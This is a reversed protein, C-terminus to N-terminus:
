AARRAASLPPKVTFVPCPALRVVKEAVSGLVLRSIGSRGHSALVILDVELRAAARVIEMYPKGFVFVPDADFGSARVEHTVKALHETAATQEETLVLEPYPEPPLLTGTMPLEWVHMLYLKARFMEAIPLAFGLAQESFTSFDTPVLIKQLAIMTDERFCGGRLLPRCATVFGDIRISMPLGSMSAAQM